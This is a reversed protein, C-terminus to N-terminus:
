YLRNILPNTSCTILVALSHIRKTRRMNVNRVNMCSKLRITTECGVIFSGSIIPKTKNQKESEILLKIVQIIM